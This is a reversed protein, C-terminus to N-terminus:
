TPTLPTPIPRQIKQTPTIHEFQLFEPSLVLGGYTGDALSLPCVDKGAM